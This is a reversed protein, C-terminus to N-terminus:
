RERREGTAQGTSNIVTQNPRDICELDLTAHEALVEGANRAVNM